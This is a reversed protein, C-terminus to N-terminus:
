HPGYLPFLIECWSNFLLFFGGLVQLWAWVGGDPISGADRVSYKSKVRGLTAGEEDTGNVQTEDKVHQGGGHTDAAVTQTELSDLSQETPQSHKEDSLSSTHEM